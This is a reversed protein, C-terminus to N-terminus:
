EGLIRSAVPGGPFVPMGPAVENFRLVVGYFVVQISNAVTELNQVSVLIQSDPQDFTYPERLFSAAAPNVGGMAGAINPANVNRDAFRRKKKMDYFQARFGGRDTVSSATTIALLTFGRQLNVRAQVTDRAALVFPVAEWVPGSTPLDDSAPRKEALRYVQLQRRWIPLMRALPHTLTNRLSYPHAGAM